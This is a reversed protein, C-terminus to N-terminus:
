LGDCLCEKTPVIPVNHPEREKNHIDTYAKYLMAKFNMIQSFIPKFLALRQKIVALDHDTIM